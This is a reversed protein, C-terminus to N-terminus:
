SADQTYIQLDGNSDVYIRITGATTESAYDVAPIADIEQKVYATTAINTSDDETAQTPATPNGTLDPSALPAFSAAVFATTAVKTSDDGASQTTATPNVLAPANLDAKSNIATQIANFEDNIEQGKIVKLADGTLLTDKQAFDTAKTYSSM